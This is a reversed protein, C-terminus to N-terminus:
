YRPYYTGYAHGWPSGYWAAFSYGPAYAVWYAHTNRDKEAQKGMAAFFLSNLLRQEDDPLTDRYARLKSVFAEVQTETPRSSTAPM